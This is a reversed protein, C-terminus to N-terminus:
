AALFINTTMLLTNTKCTKRFLSILHLIKLTVHYWIIFVHYGQILFTILLHYILIFNNLPYYFFQNKLNKLPFSKLILLTFLKHVPSLPQILSASHRAETSNSPSQTSNISYISSNFSQNNSQTLTNLTIKFSKNPLNPYCNYDWV